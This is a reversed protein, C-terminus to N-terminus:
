PGHILRAVADITHIAAAAASHHRRRLALLWDRLLCLVPSLASAGPDYYIGLFSLFMGSM